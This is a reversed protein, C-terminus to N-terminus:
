AANFNNYKYFHLHSAFWTIALKLKFIEMVVGGSLLLFTM